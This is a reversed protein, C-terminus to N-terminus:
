KCDTEVEKVTIETGDGLGVMNLLKSKASTYGDSYIEILTQCYRDLKRHLYMSDYKAEQLLTPPHFDPLVGVGIRSWYDLNGFAGYTIWNAEYERFTPGPIGSGTIQILGPSPEDVQQILARKLNSEFEQRSIKEAFGFVLLSSLLFTVVFVSLNVKIRHLKKRVASDYLGASFLALSIALPFAHRYNWDSFQRIDSSKGVVSYPLIAALVLLSLHFSKNQLVRLFSEGRTSGGWYRIERGLVFIVPIVLFTMFHLFSRTILSLGTAYFPNVLSNYDAYLGTAPDLVKKLVYYIISQFSIVGLALKKLRHDTGSTISILYSVLALTPILVLLSNLQFSLFILVYGSIQYYRNNSITARYGSLGLALSVLHVTMVSSVLNNWMPMVTVLSAALVASRSSFYLVKEAIHRTQAILLIMSALIVVVNISRFELGFFQSIKDEARILLYQMEWGATTLWEHLGRFDGTSTAYTIIDGDWMDGKSRSLPYLFVPVFIAYPLFWFSDRPSNTLKKKVIHGLDVKILKHIM